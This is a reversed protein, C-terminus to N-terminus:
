TQGGRHVSETATRCTVLPYRSVSITISRQLRSLAPRYNSLSHLRTTIFMEGACSFKPMREATPRQRRVTSTSYPPCCTTKLTEVRVSDGHFPEGRGDAGVQDPRSHERDSTRLHGPGPGAMVTQTQHRNPSPSPKPKTVTQAQHRNPSPSSKPKTVAQAQHRSPSPSPKPKTVTQLKPSPKPKSVTQAQQRNPSPAVGM